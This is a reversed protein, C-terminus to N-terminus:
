EHIITIFGKYLKKGQGIDLLYYYTGEALLHGNIRGDFENAYNRKTYVMRGARDFIKVENDPYSDINRIVWRDNKGDGNPTLLNTADVKFDETVVLSIDTTVSCGVDNTVTVLYTANAAPRVAVVNNFRNGIIGPTNTWEYISGGTATLHAIDGRSINLGLDSSVTVVPTENITLIFSSAAKDIGGNATGGDDQITLTLQVSGRTHPKLKYSIVATGDKNDKVALADFWPQNASVSLAYHQTKEPGASLGDAVIIFTQPGDCITQDKIPNITPPENVDIVNITFDQEFWLGGHDTVRVRIRYQPKTEYDFVAASQLQNGVIKFQADDAGGAFTYTFTEGADPDTASLHGVLAGAPRNELITTNDLSIATPAVNTSKINVAFNKEYFLGGNDTVRIRIQYQNKVTYDFVAASQLQKGVIKFQADDAGGAFTYTFTDGADPDTASLNGVLTGAPKGEPITDNDLSIDTPRHNVHLVNITFPKEYWLGGNDTVRIRVQYQNKVTYDFVAASQLQKGVIKFQADDAGGAFTYTFTDGADPDTASLNGVLTGASKGEPITDNDLSINTPPHNVHLVNITFPKEYWLGGNDTVRIRIQYQNKVTYDFVAAAQLQKGVIKFQADDAGGAFTYTFTDGADPDAASLNGVLTGAPKGEPITDNDLSIDTPPHNVHLVNIIFPKEYWLGGNDTVRIRIQYQNKVTYDFVAAAQLQKGVIKFQADDAGGAFTYTFTDGADPDTASLNGVLTGAPKGEPITDNDLSIDTPPHNRPLLTITVQQPLCTNLGDSVTVYIQLTGAALAPDNITITGTSADIAFDAIGNNNQDTNTNIVWNQIINSADTATLTGVPTSAPSKELLIFSVPAVIVPPTHDYVVTLVASATNGNGALDTVKNAPVSITVPGDTVPSIIASYSNGTNSLGSLVGNSVTPSAATFGNVAENWAFTVAFPANVRLSPTALSVMPPTADYTLQLVNSAGFYNGAPDQFASAPVSISVLGDAAPTVLATYAGPDPNALDKKFNTITANTALILASYPNAIPASAQLYLTFPHNIIGTASGTLTVTGNGKFYQVMLTNSPANPNGLADTVVGQSLMLMVPFGTISPNVTVDYVNNTGSRLILNSLTANTITLKNLDTFTVPKNFTITATFPSNATVPGTIVATVQSHDNAWGTTASVINPNGANDVAAGAKVYASVPGEAAAAITATYSNAGSSTLATVSGNSVVIGTKDFGTVPKSFTITLTYPSTNGPVATLQVTPPTADYNWSFIAPMANSNNALDGFAGAAITATVAGNSVPTVQVSWVSGSEQTYAGVNANTWSIKSVDLGGLAESFTFRVTFPTNFWAGNAPTATVTPPTHDFTISGSTSGNSLPSGSLDKISNTGAVALALQGDGSVNTVTINFSVNSVPTVTISGAVLTGTVNTIFDTAVPTTAPKNFTLLYTGSSGNTPSATLPSFGTVMLPRGDYAFTASAAINGNGAADQAANSNVAVTINTQIAAPTIVLQYSTGDLPAIPTISQLTGNTITVGSSTFNSVPKSFVANVTLVGAAGNVASLAVTPLTLDAQWSFAVAAANSNGAADAFGGAAITGTIPGTAAPTILVSWTHDNEKTLVGPTANGWTIKSADFGNVAESFTFRVTFPANFLTGNAPTATVTPATHDFTIGTAATFGASLPNGALDKISSSNTVGLTLQGDGSVNTVTVTFNINSVKTITINGANLTGTLTTSFDAPLPTTVAESFTLSYSGSSGNTPSTTVPTLSVVVPDKVDYTFTGSAAVNGNGYGDQAANASVAVGVSTEPAAPSIVLQYHSADVQIISNLTGNTITIGASSLNYVQESFALTPIFHQAPKDTAPTITVTPPVTSYTVTVQQSATSGVGGLDQAAGPLLQMVVSAQTPTIHWTFTNGSGTFVATGGTVSLKTADFNKTARDFTVTIDFPKNVMTLGGNVTIVPVPAVSPQQAVNYSDGTIAASLPNGSMDTIGGGGAPMYLSFLQYPYTYDFNVVHTFTVDYITPSVPTVTIQDYRLNLVSGAQQWGATSVHQVPASFTVRFTLDSGSPQNVFGMLAYSGTLPARTAYGQFAICSLMLLLLLSCVRKGKLLPM